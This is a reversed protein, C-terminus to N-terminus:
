RAPGGPELHSRSPPLLGSIEDVTRAMFWALRGWGPETNRLIYGANDPFVRAREITILARAIVRAMVLHPILALEQETLDAFRLYGRLVDRGAALLDDPPREAADRPLQNLLATSVDVAVATRVADGFDIVGTVFAPDEHAVVLNSLSFDNHLVQTRLEKIQPWLGRLRELAAELAERRAPDDVGDLLPALGLVHRVGWALVRADGPHTFGATALRLRALVEGVKEREAPSTQTRDLPTGELYAMLRIGRVQGAADTVEDFLLGAAVSTRSDVLALPRGGVVALVEHDAPLRDRRREQLGVRPLPLGPDAAAANRMLEVQFDLEEATEAPNAVKLVFRGDAADVRFTDDKETAFRVLAGTRGYVDELLARAEPEALSAFPATLAGTDVVGGDRHPNLATM